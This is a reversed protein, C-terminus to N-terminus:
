AAHRRAQEIVQLANDRYIKRLVEDPLGLGNWAWHYQYGNYYHEDLSELLRFTGRMQQPNYGFDTGYLIRDAYKRFMQNAFRPIPAVEAFRAGIDAYLNPHREFMQGLRTLDYDLNALHCAVFITKPHKQATAELSALLGDHGLVGPQKDDIRWTWGNMLGDNHHDMPLYGWIPDSVHLSIPMALQACKDWLADLRPDDPHPGAPREGGSRGGAGTGGSGRGAGSWQMTGFGRGKDVLEGVGRAGIRHCEELAQVAASGFGPQDIGSLDFGCWLDFRDPYKTYPQRIEAFRQPTGAQTLITVREVGVTDMTKVMEDVPGSRIGHNHIDIVPYKAKSVETVPVKYISLPRYDKLLLKDPMDASAQSASPPVAGAQGFAGRAALAAGPLMILQRRKM